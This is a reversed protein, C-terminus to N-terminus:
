RIKAGCRECYGTRFPLEAYERRVIEEKHIGARCKIRGWLESLLFLILGIISSFWSRSHNM